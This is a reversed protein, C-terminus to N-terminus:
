EQDKKDGHWDPGVPGKNGFSITEVEVTLGIGPFFGAIDHAGPKHRVVLGGLRHAQRWRPRCIGKKHDASRPAM